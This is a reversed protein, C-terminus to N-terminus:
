QVADKDLIPALCLVIYMMQTWFVSIHLYDRLLPMNFWFLLAFPIFIIYYIIMITSDRLEKRGDESFIYGFLSIVPFSSVIVVIAMVAYHDFTHIREIAEM